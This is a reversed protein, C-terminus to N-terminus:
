CYTACSRGIGIGGEEYNWIRLAIKMDRIELRCKPGLIIKGVAEEKERSFDLDFFSILRSNKYYIGVSSLIESAGKRIEEKGPMVAMCLRWEREESFAPNKMMGYMIEPKEFIKEVAEHMGLGEKVLQEIGAAQEAAYDKQRQVEYNVKLYSLGSVERDLKELYSRYFGIAAGRGDMAYARWQSLLDANESFCAAYLIKDTRWGEGARRYAEMLGHDELNREFFEQDVLNKMWSREAYDNSKEIDSLRLTGRELIEKMTEVTCYHYVFEDGAM